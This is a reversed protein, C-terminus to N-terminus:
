ICSTYVYLSIKNFYEMITTLTIKIYRFLLYKLFRKDATFEFGKNRNIHEFSYAAM